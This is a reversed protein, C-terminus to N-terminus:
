RMVLKELERYIGVPEGNSQEESVAIATIEKARAETDSEAYIRFQPANGSPRIYAIDGNSFFIKVADCYNIKVVSGFGREANFQKSINRSLSDLEENEELTATREDFDSSRILWAKSEKCEVELLTTETKLLTQPSFQQIIKRSVDQSFNNIFRSDTYRKPITKLLKALSNESVASLLVLVITTMADRTPLATLLHNGISIDTSTLFGGNAEAGAVNQIGRLVAQQMASVIYPSGIPTREVSIGALIKEVASSVSNTTVFYDVSLEKAAVATAIDGRLFSGEEDIIIPRDGDPDTSVLAFIETSKEKQYEELYNKFTALIKPEIAETDITSFTDSRGVPFVKAGLSELIHVITDRGVASYQYVIINKGQLPKDPFASTFREIYFKVPGSTPEGLDQFAKVSDVFTGDESFLNGEDFEQLAEEQAKDIHATIIQEDKKLVERNSLFPKIGNRDEPIHSGTIVISPRATRMAYYAVEPTMAEGVYVYKGGASQIGLALAATISPSSPRRDHGLVITRNEKFSPDASEFFRVLGMGAIYAVFDNLDEVKGRVGSTGWHLKPPQYKM